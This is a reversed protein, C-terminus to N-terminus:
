SRKRPGSDDHYEPLGGDSRCIRLSRVQSRPESMSDRPMPENSRPANACDANRFVGSSERTITLWQM